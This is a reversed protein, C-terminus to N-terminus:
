FAQLSLTMAFRSHGDLRFRNDAREGVLWVIDAGSCVVLQREKDFQSMKVDTLYDSVLKSGTMGFPVFRDGERIPRVTLPFALKDVDLCVSGKNRPVVFADNVPERRIVFTLGTAVSVVGQLPLVSTHCVFTDQKSRLLLRGRDRLLRWEACDYIHGPEGNIHEYIESVQMRNFGKESLIEYLLTAPSPERLLAATDIIEGHMVRQCAEDIARNYYAEAGAMRQATAQLTEAISPNIAQLQPLINLRIKNRVAEDQLNTSDTVYSEGTDELFAEIDARAINLLPRVVQGNRSAMGTLGHVGTGRILNLLLTEVNDDRHHAVAICDAGRERRLREFYAYRLERAAMEVSVGNRRAYTQTRFHTVELHVNLRRCLARVFMEDRESEAGRLEFNCHVAEVRFSLMKLALLLSVSDAGGSLAVLVLHKDAEM